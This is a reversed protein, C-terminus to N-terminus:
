QDVSTRCEGCGYSPGGTNSVLYRVRTHAALHPSAFDGSGKHRPFVAIWLGGLLVLLPVEDFKSCGRQDGFEYERIIHYAVEGREEFCKTSQKLCAVDAPIVAFVSRSRSMPCNLCCISTRTSLIKSTRARKCHRCSSTVLSTCRHILFVFSHSLIHARGAM